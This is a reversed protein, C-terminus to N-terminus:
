CALIWVLSSDIYTGKVANHRVSDTKISVPPPVNKLGFVDGGTEHIWVLSDFGLFGFWPILVWFDLGLFGFGPIWVLSDLGLFGFWPIWDWSDM